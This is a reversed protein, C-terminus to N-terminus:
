KCACRFLIDGRPVDFCEIAASEVTQQRTEALGEAGAGVHVGAASGRGVRPESARHTRASWRPAARTSHHGAQARVSREAARAPQAM